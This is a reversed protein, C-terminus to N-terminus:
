KEVRFVEVSNAEMRDYDLKGFLTVTDNPNVNVGQWVSEDIDVRIEGSADRFLFEDDDLQRVIKGSLRLPANDQKLKLAQAVTMKPTDAPNGQFGAFASASLTLSVVWTAIHKKM